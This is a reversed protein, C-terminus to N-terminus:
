PSSKVAVRYYNKDFDELVMKGVPKVYAIIDLPTEVSVEGILKDGDYINLQDGSRLGNFAGLTVLYRSAKHDVWLIGEKKERAEQGYVNEAGTLVDEAKVPGKKIRGSDAPEMQAAAKEAILNTLQTELYAVKTARVKTTHGISYLVVAVCIFSITILLLGVILRLKIKDPM